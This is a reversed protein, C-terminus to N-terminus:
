RVEDNYANMHVKHNKFIAKLMHANNNEVCYFFMTQNLKLNHGVDNSIRIAEMCLV